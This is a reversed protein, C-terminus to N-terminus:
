QPSLGALLRAVRADLNDPGLTKELHEAALRLASRAEESKGQALLARGLALYARGLNVSFSGPETSEQLLSVSREADAAARDSQHADLEIASREFLLGPLLHAGQGGSRIAAEDLAVSQNMFRLATATDGEAQALLARDSALRAFAYHEPPLDRRLMPEVEAMMTASRTFDRQDRYIRGRELLSQEMVVRDSVQQAKTYALEAYTAAEPFRGLNRLADAYNDLLEPPAADDAQSAQSIDIARRYVREAENVRGALMLALAWANYLEAATKTGDYGLDTMLASARAFEAAAERSRGALNYASALHMSVNLRLSNSAFASEHLLREAAQAQAINENAAGGGASVESGRLLCFIRDLTFRSDDPLEDLGERILSDARAHQGARGVSQALACSAQARVSPDQLERTQQYAEQLVRLAKENEDKDFYQTGISVLMEAHNSPDGSYNEREVIHEARELLDNITLPQRSPAADTLLFRNLNGIQEARTLERLAFDRQQRTSRAQLLTGATGALVALLAFTALAVALRNRRVFKATRYALTDPRASIPEHRLYRALDDAFASVSSYRERPNKKLAKAVITDLDGRLQRQIKDQTASRNAANPGAERSAAADSARLPEVDVIAKVLDATSHPGQGAPHQGTLLAYLLVGLAYVDTATTVTGGTVQEPAASLPTLPGAGELTLSTAAAPNADDVLLKAIGFDLLKVEGNSSVLVNSPKIDRHVILNAHAHAVAGLVDLYLRIRADVDLAHRDCYEDIPEGEVHELVLYPQGSATVGADILEAIHRHALQGLIRGERRFREAPGQAALAFNLFKVAARRQFRGDSREALWVSGMGGQGIPSLLKYVGVLQGALFPENPLGAPGRELFHEQALANHEDLLEQLLDALDPRKDRFSELWAARGQEPVSLVQDLYPSIELWRDHSLTSM